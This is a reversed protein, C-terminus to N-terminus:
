SEECVKHVVASVANPLFLFLLPVRLLLSQDLVFLFCGQPLIGVTCYIHGVVWLIDRIVM